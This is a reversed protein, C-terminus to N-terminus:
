DGVKGVRSLCSEPKSSSIVSFDFSRDCFIVMVNVGERPLEHM